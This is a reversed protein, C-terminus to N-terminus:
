LGIPFIPFQVYGKGNYWSPSCHGPCHWCTSVSTIFAICMPCGKQLITYCQLNETAESVSSDIPLSHVNKYGKSCTFIPRIQVQWGVMQYGALAAFSKALITIWKLPSWHLKTCNMTVPHLQTSGAPLGAPLLEETPAPTPAPSLYVSYLWEAVM